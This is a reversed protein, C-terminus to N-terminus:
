DRAGPLIRGDGVGGDHGVENRLTAQTAPGRM